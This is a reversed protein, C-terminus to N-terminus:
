AVATVATYLQIICTTKYIYLLICSVLSALVNQSNRSNRYYDEKLDSDGSDAQEPEPQSARAEAMVEDAQQDRASDRSEAAAVM